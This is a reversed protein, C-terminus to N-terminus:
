YFSNWPYEDPPTCEVTVTEDKDPPKVNVTYSWLAIPQGVKNYHQGYNTDGHLVNGVNALQVRIQYSYGKEMEIEMLTLDNDEDRDIVKYHLVGKTAGAADKDTIDFSNNDTNKILYDTLSDEDSPMKGRVIARYKRTVESKESEKSFLSATEATKGFILAGGIPSDLVEEAELYLNGDSKDNDKVYEKLENLLEDGETGKKYSPVIAPKQIILLHDDEYLINKEM